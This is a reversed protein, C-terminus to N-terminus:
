SHSVPLVSCNCYRGLTKLESSTLIISSASHIHKKLDEMEFIQM